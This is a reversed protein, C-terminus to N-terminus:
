VNGFNINPWVACETFCPCRKVPKTKYKIEKDDIKGIDDDAHICPMIKGESTVTAFREGAVCNLYGKDFLINEGSTLFRDLASFYKNDKNARLYSLVESKLENSIDFQTGPIHLNGYYKSKEAVRFTFGLENEKTLTVLYKFDAVSTNKTLTSSIIISNKPNTERVAVIANKAKEFARHGRLKDNNIPMGDISTVIHFNIKSDCFLDVAEKIRKISSGNTTLFVDKVNPHNIISKLIETLDPHLTPEGGTISIEEISINEKRNIFESLMSASIFELEKNEWIACFSCRSNCNNNIILNLSKM